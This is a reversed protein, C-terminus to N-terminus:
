LRDGPGLRRHADRAREDAVSAGYRQVMERSSWGTLRMLDGENGGAALWLHAFSHRFRHPNVRPIGAKECRRELMQRVGSDTLRGKTSLWLWPLAADPHRTRARLYRDVAKATKTGFPCSRPKRGKGLVLAVDHDFDIHNVELGALEGLRMGTDIFLRIIAM